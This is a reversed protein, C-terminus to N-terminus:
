PCAGATVTVAVLLPHGVTQITLHAADPPSTIQGGRVAACWGNHYHAPAGIEISTVGSAALSPTYTMSFGGTFPNFLISSAVGATEQPYTRSLVTVTPSYSGDALVLAEASSGTPDSYYKWAWYAWGVQDLSAWETDFGVLPVSSTAGFESMFLAPGSPAYESSMSLRVIDQEAADTEESQLCALLNTPDGTVPSRDGCYVHFNFVIRPFPMPGLQSPINGGNVWYIDPELFILHHQDVSEISPVVGDDPVDQPCNLRTSEDALYGAHAKGTYFCELYSTFTSEAALQTETSFPENYPDYGVVWRDNKFYSAVVTWIHDFEGELDGTVDNSWFHAVATQLQANAYNNSWRGPSPVIPQNDTCVAWNPAGEGRFKSSYVDQHMDLLTYIGYRSLLKVTAAVHKLYRMAIARNYEHPDTPSGKTCIKPQNPGGSGPELAQWEIGLRVLNFGLSRMRVADYADFDWAKGPDPYAIYPAHKYVVNTGHLLVMRNNADYLYPGGPSSLFSPVGAQGGATSVPGDSGQYQVGPGALARVHPSLAQLNPQNVRPPKAKGPPATTTTTPGNLPALTPSTTTSSQSTAVASGEAAFTLALTCVAAIATVRTARGSTRLRRSKGIM